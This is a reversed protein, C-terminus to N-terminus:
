LRHSPPFIQEIFLFLCVGFTNQKHPANNDIHIIHQPVHVIGPYGNRRM